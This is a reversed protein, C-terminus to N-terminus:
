PKLKLLEKYLELPIETYQRIDSLDSDYNEICWYYSGNFEAVHLGGYYNGINPIEFTEM